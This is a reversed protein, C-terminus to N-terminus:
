LVISDSGALWIRFRAPATSGISAGGSSTLRGGVILDLEADPDLAVTLGARLDVNGAVALLARGHVALFLAQQASIASLRDQGRPLDVATSTDVAALRGPSLGAALNDNRAATAALAGPIDAVPAGCDCPPPVSIPQRLIAPTDISIFALATIASP